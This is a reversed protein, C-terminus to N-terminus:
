CSHAPDAEAKYTCLPYAFRITQGRWGLNIEDAWVACRDGAQGAVFVVNRGRAAKLEFRGDRDSTTATEHPGFYYFVGGHWLYYCYGTETKFDIDISAQLEHWSRLVRKQDLSRTFAAWNDGSSPLVLVDAGAASSVHGNEDTAFIEGSIRASSCALSACLTLGLIARSCTAFFSAM